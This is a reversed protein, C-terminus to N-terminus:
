SVFDVITAATLAPEGLWPGHGTPLVALQGHPMLDTVAQAVSVGGLPDHEGWVMLTPVALERLEAPRVRASRRVGSPTFLAFPSVFARLEARDVRVAVPDRGAAVMLDVQDPYTALTARENAAHHTFQLVSKRSPPVLRSLLEGVGPTSGLRIPLALRTKPVAPPAILVLPGVREPRALAYWLALMAGGSHGVLAAAELELTDLLRDVWAVAVERYRGKPLDIPDSLGQGPRDPAIARVGDLAEVLPLFFGATGGPCHLLVVPPGDGKELVHVDSGGVEVFRSRVSAGALVREYVERVEASHSASAPVGTRAPAGYTDNM